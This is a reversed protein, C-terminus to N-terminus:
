SSLYITNGSCTLVDDGGDGDVHLIHQTRIINGSMNLVCNMVVMEMLMFSLNHERFMDPFMMVVMEMMM